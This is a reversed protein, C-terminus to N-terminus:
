TGWILSQKRWRRSWEKRTSLNSLFALEKMLLRLPSTPLPPQVWTFCRASNPLAEAPAAPFSLPLLEPMCMTSKFVCAGLSM